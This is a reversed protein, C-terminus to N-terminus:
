PTTSALLRVLVTGTSINGHRDMVFVEFNYDGPGHTMHILAVATNEREIDAFQDGVSKWRFELPEWGYPSYSQSADLVLDQNTM